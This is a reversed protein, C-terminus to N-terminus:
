RAQSMRAGPTGAAADSSASITKSGAGPKHSCAALVAMSSLAAICVVKSTMVLRGM